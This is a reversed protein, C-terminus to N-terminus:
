NSKRHTYGSSHVEDEAAATERSTVVSEEDPQEGTYQAAQKGCAKGGSM